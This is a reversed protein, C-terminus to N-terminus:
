LVVLDRTVIGLIRELFGTCYLQSHYKELDVDRLFEILIKQTIELLDKGIFFACVDLISLYDHAIMILIAQDIGVSTLEFKDIFLYCPLSTNRNILAKSFPLHHFQREIYVLIM